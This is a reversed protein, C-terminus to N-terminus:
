KSAIGRVVFCDLLRELAKSSANATLLLKKIKPQPGRTGDPERVRTKIFAKKSTM